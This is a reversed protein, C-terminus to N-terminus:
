LFYKGIRSQDVDFLAYVNKLFVDGLLWAGAVVEIGYVNSSCVGNVEPGVWDKSSIKYTVGSFTIFASDTTTCPVTYTRGDTSAAGPVVAHFLKVDSASAFIFSTGTDVFGLKGSTVTSKTTGVGINDMPIAWDMEGNTTVPTYSLSGSFRSTDAAGFNIEGTDSSGDASRSLAVGFVNARLQQSSVLAELFSPSDSTMRSLGIIGDIPFNNFEDSTENAVGFTMSMKLGALSVTDTAQVGSVSGTGYAVSFSKQTTKYTTSDLPGFTNHSTCPSSKCDSGMIWTQGAGTDLLMYYTKSATGLKIEAFYSYDTGDQDIGASLTQSPLIASVVNLPDRKGYAVGDDRIDHKVPTGRSFKRKLRTASLHAYEAHTM